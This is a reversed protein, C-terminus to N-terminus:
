ISATQWTGPPATKSSSRSYTNTLWHPVMPTLPPPPKSWTRRLISFISTATTITGCPLAPLHPASRVSNTGGGSETESILLTPSGSSLPADGPELVFIDNTAFHGLPQGPLAQDAFQVAVDYSSSGVSFTDTTLDYVPNGMLSSFGAQGLIHATLYSFAVNWTEALYYAAYVNVDTSGDHWQQGMLQNIFALEQQQLATNFYSSDPNPSIETVGAWELLVTQLTAELHFSPDLLESFSKTALSEVDSLLTSDLSMSIDLRPLDGYGRQDPLGFVASDPTFSGDYLSNVLDSAFWADAITQTNGNIVFTSQEGITNGNIQYSEDTYSLSISTIGLDALTFLDGSQSVGDSGASPVWVRLQSFNTDSSNIVGDSNSDYAALALFGNAYTANNGFLDAQTIVGTSTPDICLLGTTGTVWGSANKIGSGSDWYVSGCSNLAALTIGSGDSSLDLVLPSYTAQASAFLTEVVAMFPSVPHANELNHISAWSPMPDHPVDLPVGTEGLSRFPEGLLMRAYNEIDNSFTDDAAKQADTALGTGFLPNTPVTQGIITGLENAFATVADTPIPTSGTFPNLWTNNVSHPDDPNTDVRITTADTLLNSSDWVPLTAAAGGSVSVNGFDVEISSSGSSSMVATSLSQSLVPDRSLAEVGAVFEQFQATTGGENVLNFTINGIKVSVTM